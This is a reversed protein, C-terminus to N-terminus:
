PGLMERVWAGDEDLRPPALRYGPPAADLRIPNAVQPVPAERRPDAIDVVPDLGLSEALRFAGAVDNVPGCPVGAAM